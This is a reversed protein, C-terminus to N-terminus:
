ESASSSASFDILLSLNAILPITAQYNANVVARGGEKTIELDSGRIREVNDISARRDFAERIQKVSAANLEGASSMNSLVRKVAAYEIYAPVAKIVVIAIIVLLIVFLLTGLGGLGTQKRARM